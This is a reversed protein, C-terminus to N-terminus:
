RRFVWLTQDNKNIFFIRSGTTDVAVTAVDVARGSETGIDVLLSQTGTALDVLWLDDDLRVSGRYWADPMASGLNDALAFACVLQAPAATGPLNACKETMISTSLETTEESELDQVFTAYQNNHQQSYLAYQETGLGTLGNGAIMLRELEGNQSRYLYGPLWTSAKPYSYHPGDATRGLRVRAERFPVTFLTDAVGSIPFYEKVVVRDIQQVAYLFTNNDTTSVETINPELTNEDATDDLLSYVITTQNNGYGSQILAYGGESTIAGTHTNALTKNSVRREEGSTLDITYVHGVGTEIYYLTPSSSTADSLVSRFGAVPKTTLQQLPSTVSVTGTQNQPPNPNEAPPEVENSPINFDAFQDEEEPPGGYFLVYLWIAFLVIVLVLGFIIILIRKM